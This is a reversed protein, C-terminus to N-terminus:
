QWFKVVREGEPCRVTPQWDTSQRLSGPMSKKAELFLSRM